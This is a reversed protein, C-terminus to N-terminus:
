DRNIIEETLEKYVRTNDWWYLWKGDKFLYAYNDHRLTSMETHTHPETENWKDGRDRHYFVTTDDDPQMFKHNDTSAEIKAGLSSIDGHSILEKVKELTNYNHYLIKGVWSPYGDWHSYVDTYTETQEDYYAIFCRTAM